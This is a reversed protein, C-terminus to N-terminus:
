QWNFNWSSNNAGENVPRPRPAAKRAAKEKAQERAERAAREAEKAREAAEKAAKEAVERARQEQTLLGRAAEAERQAQKMQERAEQSAREAAQIAARAETGIQETDARAAREQALQDRSEKAAREAMEKASRERALQDRSEKALREATDKASKEQNLQERAAAATRESTERARREVALRERQLRVEADSSVEASASEWFPPQDSGYVWGIAAGLTITAVFLATMVALRKFGFKAPRRGLEDKRSAQGRWPDYTGFNWIHGELDRCSYGRGNSGEGEIDLVIEAGAAKARIHHVGADEVYLYCIQTEAGGAEEPQKMLQDFATDEVPVVMIMGEGFTLQAYRVAGDEGAVVLHKEFGFARCLWAIAAPVDRYRLTPVLTRGAVTAHANM